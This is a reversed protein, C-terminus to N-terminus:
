CPGPRPPTTPGPATCVKTPIPLTWLDTSPDKFGRLIVVGDIVVNCKKNDFIVKCGAKCLPRIGILSAIRLSPVIHGTLVTPLGPIQIDCVHPSQVWKGDPLNNTLPVTAPRKNDVDAGEMIFISTAGTDAIAQNTTITLANLYQPMPSGFLTCAAMAILPWVQQPTPWHHTRNLTIITVDDDDKSSTSNIPTPDSAPECASVLHKCKNATMMPAAGTGQMADAFSTRSHGGQRGGQNCGRGGRQGERGAPYAGTASFPQQMPVAVQQIPPVYFQNRLAYACTNQAPPPVVSLAAMQATVAAMQSTIATQNASLQNIAAAVEASIATGGSPTTGGTTSADMQTITTVTNDDTDDDNKDELVNYMTLNAYGNHGSTSRLALATLHHGYAAHIFTKLAPYSKPTVADWAGFEKLPFIHAQLLIRVANAIIQEESYPLNGICQIEQCQKIRYFLMEPLNGATTPSRFFTNNTYL